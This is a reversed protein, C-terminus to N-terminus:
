RAAIAANTEGVKVLLQGADFAHLLNSYAASPFWTWSNAVQHSGTLVGIEFSDAVAALIWSSLVKPRHLWYEHLKQRAEIWGDNEDVDLKLIVEGPFLGAVLEVSEDELKPLKQPDACHLMANVKRYQIPVQQAPSSACTATTDVIAGAEIKQLGSSNYFTIEYGKPSPQVDVIKTMMKINLNKTRILQLLVPAIPPLHVHGNESLVNRRILDNQLDIAAESILPKEWSEGPNFSAIFESGVLSTPEALFTENPNAIAIGLGAFTAGYIFVPVFDPERM